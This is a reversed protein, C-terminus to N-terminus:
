VELTSATVTDLWVGSKLKLKNSPDRCTDRFRHWDFLNVNGFTRHCASCHCRSLGTWSSDCGGCNIKEM